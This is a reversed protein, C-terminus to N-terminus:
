GLFGQCRSRPSQPSLYLLVPKDFSFSFSVVHLTNIPYVSIWTGREECLRQISAVSQEPAVAGTPNNPSILVIAKTRDTILGPLRSLDPTFDELCPALVPTVSILQLAMLHNFYYPTFIIVEDGPDCITMVVNM